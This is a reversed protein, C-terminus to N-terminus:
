TPTKGTRIKQGGLQLLTKRSDTKSPKELAKKARAIGGRRGAEKTDM